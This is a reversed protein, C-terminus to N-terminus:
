RSTVWVKKGDLCAEIQEPFKMANISKSIFGAFRKTQAKPIESEADLSSVAVVLIQSLEPHVQWEDFVDYGSIGKRLMIDLVILDIPLHQLLFETTQTNWADQIVAVGQRRLATAIVALNTVNDEFVVIRKGTLTSM